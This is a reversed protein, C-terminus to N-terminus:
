KESAATSTADRAALVLDGGEKLIRRLVDTTPLPASDDDDPNRRSRLRLLEHVLVLGNERDVKAMSAAQKPDVQQPELGLLDGGAGQVGGADGASADTGPLTAAAAASDDDDDEVLEAVDGLVDDRGTVAEALAGLLERHQMLGAVVQAAAREGAREGAGSSSSSSRAMLALVFWLESRLLPHKKQAGLFLLADRLDTAYDAYFAELLPDKQSSSTTPSPFIADSSSSHLTRCINLLARAAEM